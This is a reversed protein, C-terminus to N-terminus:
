RTLNEVRMDRPWGFGFVFLLIGSLGCDRPGLDRLGFRQVAGGRDARSIKCSSINGSAKMRSRRLIESLKEDLGGEDAQQFRQREWALLV